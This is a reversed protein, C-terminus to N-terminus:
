PQLTETASQTTGIPEPSEDEYTSAALVGMLLLFLVLFLLFSFGTSKEQYNTGTKVVEVDGNPLTKIVLKQDLGLSEPSLHIQNMSTSNFRM